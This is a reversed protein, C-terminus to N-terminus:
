QREGRDKAPPAHVRSERVGDITEEGAAGCPEDRQDGDARSSRHRLRDEPRQGYQLESRYRRQHGRDQNVVAEKAVVHRV